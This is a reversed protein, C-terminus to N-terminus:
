ALLGPQQEPPHDTVHGSLDRVRLSWDTCQLAPVASITPIRTSSMTLAVTGAGSRVSPGTGLRWMLSFGGPLWVRHHDHDIRVINYRYGPGFREFRGHPFGHDMHNASTM